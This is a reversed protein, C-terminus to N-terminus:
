WASLRRRARLAWVGYLDILVFGAIAVALRPLVQVRWREDNVATLQELCEPPGGPLM